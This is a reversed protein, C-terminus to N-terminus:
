TSVSVRPIRREIVSWLRKENEPSAAEELTFLVKRLSEPLQQTLALVNALEAFYNDNQRDPEPLVLNSAKLDSEFASLLRALRRHGIQRLIPTQTFYKLVASM